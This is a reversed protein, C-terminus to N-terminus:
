GLAYNPERCDRRYTTAKVPKAPLLMELLEMIHSQVSKNKTLTKFDNAWLGLIYFFFMLGINCM